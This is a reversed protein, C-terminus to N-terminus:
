KVVEKLFDRGEDGRGVGAMKEEVSVDRPYHFNHANAPCNIPFTELSLKEFMTDVRKFGVNGIHKFM